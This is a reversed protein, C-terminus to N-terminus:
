EYSRSAKWSGDIHRGLAEELWKGAMKLKEILKGDIKLWNKMSKPVTKSDNQAWKPNWFRKTFWIGIRHANAVMKKNNEISKSEDRILLFKLFGLSFRHKEIIKILAKKRNSSSNCAFLDLCFWCLDEIKQRFIQHFNIFIAIFNSWWNRVCKPM